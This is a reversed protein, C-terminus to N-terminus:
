SFEGGCWAYIYTDIDLSGVGRADRECTDIGMRATVGPEFPGRGYKKRTRHPAAGKIRTGGKKKQPRERSSLEEERGAVCSRVEEKAGSAADTQDRGRGVKRRV